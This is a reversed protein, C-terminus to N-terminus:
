DHKVTNPRPWTRGVVTGSRDATAYPNIAALLEDALAPPDPIPDYHRLYGAFM